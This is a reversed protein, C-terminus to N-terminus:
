KTLESEKECFQIAEPVKIDLYDAEKNRVIWLYRYEVQHAFSKEKLFLPYHEMRSLIFDNLMEKRINAPNEPDRFKNVDIYGLDQEIIKMDQYLCPGEFANVLGPINRAVAM